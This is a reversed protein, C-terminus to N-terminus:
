QNMINIPISIRLDRSKNQEVEHMLWAPFIYLSGSDPKIGLKQRGLIKGQFCDYHNAFFAQSRPDHFVLSGAGPPASIYYVSALIANAHNHATNYGGFGQINAGSSQVRLSKINVSLIESCVEAVFAGLSAWLPNERLDDIEASKWGNVLSRSTNDLGADAMQDLLFEGFRSNEEKARPYISKWIPTSFIMSRSSINKGM